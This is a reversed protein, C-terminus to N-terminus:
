HLLTVACPLQVLVHHLLSKRYALDTAYIRVKLERLSMVVSADATNEKTNQTLITSLTSIIMGKLSSATLTLLM